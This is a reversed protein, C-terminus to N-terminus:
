PSEPPSKGLENEMSEREVDDDKMDGEISRADVM